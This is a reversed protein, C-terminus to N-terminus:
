RTGFAITLIILKVNLFVFLYPQYFFRCSVQMQGLQHSAFEKAFVKSYKGFVHRQCLLLCPSSLKLIRVLSRYVSAATHRKPPSKLPLVEFLSHGTSTYFAAENNKEPLVVRILTSSHCLLLVSKNFTPFNYKFYHPRYTNSYCFEVWTAM